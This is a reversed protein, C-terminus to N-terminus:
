QAARTTAMIASAVPISTAVSVPSSEHAGVVNGNNPRTWSSQARRDFQGRYPCTSDNDQLAFGLGAAYRAVAIVLAVSHTVKMPQHSARAVGRVESLPCVSQANFDARVGGDSREYFISGQVNRTRTSEFGDGSAGNDNGRTRTLSRPRSAVHRSVATATNVRRPLELLPDFLRVQRDALSGDDNASFV